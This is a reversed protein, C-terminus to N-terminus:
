GLRVDKSPVRLSKIFFQGLREMDAVIKEYRTPEQGVPRATELRNRTSKGALPSAEPDAWTCLLGMLPDDRLQEYDVLNEYVLCLGYIRQGILREVPRETSRQDRGDRFCGTFERIYGRGQEKQRLLLSGGDWGVQGVDIAAVM